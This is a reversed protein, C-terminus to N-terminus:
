NWPRDSGNPCYNWFLVGYFSCELRWFIKLLRHSKERDFSWSLCWVLNSHERGLSNGFCFGPITCIRSLSCRPCFLRCKVLAWKDVKELVLCVSYKTTSFVHVLCQQSAFRTNGNNRSNSALSLLFEICFKQPDSWFCWWVVPQYDSGLTPPQWYRALYQASGKWSSHTKTPGHALYKTKPEFLLKQYNLAHHFSHQTKHSWHIKLKYLIFSNFSLSDSLMSYFLSM